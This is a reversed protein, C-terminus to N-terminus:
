EQLVRRVGDSFLYKSYLIHFTTLGGGWIERGTTPSCSVHSFIVKVSDEMEGSPAPTRQRIVEFRHSSAIAVSDGRAVWEIFPHSPPSYGAAEPLIDQRQQHSLSSSDLILFNGFFLSGVPPTSTPSLRSLDRSWQTPHVVFGSSSPKVSANLAKLITSTNTLSLHSICFLWREITFAPGGFFGQNFRALIEDDTINKKLKRLPIITSYTEQLPGDLKLNTFIRSFSEKHGLSAHEERTCPHLSPASQYALLLSASAATIAVAGWRTALMSMIQESTRQM